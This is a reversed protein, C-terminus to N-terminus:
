VAAYGVVVMRTCTLVCDPSVAPAPQRHTRHKRTFLTSHLHVACKFSTKLSLRDRFWDVCHYELYSCRSIYSQLVMINSDFFYLFCYVLATQQNFHLKLLRSHWRIFSHLIYATFSAIQNCYESPKQM